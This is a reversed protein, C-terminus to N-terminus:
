LLFATCLLTGFVLSQTLESFGLRHVDLPQPGRIYWFAGRLWVPLFALGIALPFVGVRRLLLLAAILAAQGVLFLYGHHLKQEFGVARSSHIRLQVFHIQNGAFMWNALWLALATRDLQGTAVYYAGAATSTLGIAGIVQAPMRGQRGLKKVWAQVAFALAALAGLSLLQLNRGNWLLGSICAAAFTGLGLMMSLVIKRERANQAKIPSTGLWCEAPTRLWFCSLAALVYLTLASLNVAGRLAVIGGTALPVLLMGWAGHERPVAITRLRANNLFEIHAAM